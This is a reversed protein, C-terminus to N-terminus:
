HNSDSAPIFEISRGIVLLLFLKTQFFNSVQSYAQSENKFRIILYQKWLNQGLDYYSNAMERDIQIAYRYAKMGNILFGLCEESSIVKGGSIRKSLTSKMTPENTPSLAGDFQTSFSLLNFYQTYVDRLM